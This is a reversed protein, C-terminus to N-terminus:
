VRGIRGTREDLRALTQGQEELLGIVRSTMPVWDGLRVYNRALELRLEAVDRELRDVRERAPQRGALGLHRLAVVGAALFVLVAVVGGFAQWADVGPM